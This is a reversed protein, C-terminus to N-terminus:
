YEVDAYENYILFRCTYANIIITFVGENRDSLHLVTEEIVGKPNFTSSLLGSSIKPSNINSADLFKINEPLERPPILVPNDILTEPNKEPKEYSGWYIGKDLDLHLVTNKHSVISKSRLLHVSAKLSRAVSKLDTHFLFNGLKPMATFLLLGILFIVVTLEILTFGDSRKIFDQQRLIKNNSRGFISIRPIM